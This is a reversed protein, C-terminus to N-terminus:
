FDAVEQWSTINIAPSIADITIKVKRQIDGVAGLSTIIRNQAIQATVTYTCTGTGLTLSDTGEYALADNIEQLAEEACADALAKAQNSQQQSYSSLGSGLALLIIAVAIVAGVASIIIVSILVIYGKNKNDLHLQPMFHKVTIM